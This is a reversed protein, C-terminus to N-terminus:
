HHPDAHSEKEYSFRLGHTYFIWWAEKFLVTKRKKQGANVLLTLAVLGGSHQRCDQLYFCLM